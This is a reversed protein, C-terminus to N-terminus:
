ALCLRNVTQTQLMFESKCYDTFFDRQFFSITQQIQKKNEGTYTKKDGDQIKCSVPSVFCDQKLTKRVLFVSTNSLLFCILM